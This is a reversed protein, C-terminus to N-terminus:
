KHEKAAVAEKAAAVLDAIRQDYRFPGLLEREVVDEFEPHDPNLLYNYSAPAAVSPVRLAVSRRSVVWEDGFAHTAELDGLNVGAAKLDPLADAVGAPHIRCMYLSYGNLDGYLTWANLIELAALAPHEATYIVAV